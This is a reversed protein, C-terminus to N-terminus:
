KPDGKFLKMLGKGIKTSNSRGTNHRGSNSGKSADTSENNILKNEYETIMTPESSALDYEIM